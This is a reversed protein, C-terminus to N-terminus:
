LRDGLGIRRHAERAREDAASSGYRHLMARSRWGLLRMLSDDDGGQARWHHAVSHRLVHPHLNPIGAQRGRAEVIRRITPAVLPGKSGLWLGESDAYPHRARARLYRDLARATKRGFPADRPRRGKGMVLVIGETFDIDSIKLTALEQRRLGSDALLRLIAM